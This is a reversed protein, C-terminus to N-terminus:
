VQRPVQRHRAGARAHALPRRHLGCVPLVAQGANARMNASSRVAHDSIADTYYYKEPQYEPDNLSSRTTAPCRTPILSAAPETITGYFRDFGRQLPWNSRKPGDPENGHTVHWKGAMYTRYGAPKLAEAITVASRRSGLDGRQQRDYGKDGGGRGNGWFINKVGGSIRGESVRGM